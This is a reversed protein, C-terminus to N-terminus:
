ENSSDEDTFEDQVLNVKKQKQRAKSKKSRDFQKQKTKCMVAYHYPKNCLHCLQGIAPCKDKHSHDYGCRTCKKRKDKYIHPTHQKKKVVMNVSPDEGTM